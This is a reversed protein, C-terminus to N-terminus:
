SHRVSVTSVASVASMSVTVDLLVDLLAMYFRHVAAVDDLSRRVVDLGSMYTM